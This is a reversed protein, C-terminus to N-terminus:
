RRKKLAPHLPDIPFGDPGVETSYGRSEKQQAVSDHCPACLSIFPGRYFTEPKLKTDPDVHHCVSAATVKGKDECWKCLPYTSLQQNRLRRWRTTKYNWRYRDAEPSRQARGSM